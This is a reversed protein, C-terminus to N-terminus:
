NFYFEDGIIAMLTDFISKQTFVYSTHSLNELEYLTLEFSSSMLASSPHTVTIAYKYQYLRHKEILDILKISLEKLLQVENKVIFGDVGKENVIYCSYYLSIDPDDLIFYCNNAYCRKILEFLKSKNKIIILTAYPEENAAVKKLDEYKKDLEDDYLDAVSYLEAKSLM